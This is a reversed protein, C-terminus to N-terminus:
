QLSTITLKLEYFYFFILNQQNIERMFELSFSSACLITWFAITRIRINSFRKAYNCINSIWFAITRISWIM